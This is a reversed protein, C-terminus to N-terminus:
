GIGNGGHHLLEKEEKDRWNGAVPPKSAQLEVVVIIWDESEATLM